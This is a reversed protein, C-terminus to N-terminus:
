HERRPGLLLQASGRRLPRQQGGRCGRLPSHHCWANPAPLQAQRPDRKFSAVPHAGPVRRVARLNRGAPRAAGGLRGRWALRPLSPENVVVLFVQGNVWPRAKPQMAPLEHTEDDGKCHRKESRVLRGEHRVQRHGELDGVVEHVAEEQYVHDQLAEHRQGIGVPGGADQAGGPVDYPLVHHAPHEHVEQGDGRVERHQSETGVASALKAAPPHVADHAVHAEAPEQAHRPEHVAALQEPAPLDEEAEAERGQLDQLVQGDNRHGQM